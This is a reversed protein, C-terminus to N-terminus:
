KQLKARTVAKLRRLDPELKQYDKKSLHDIFLVGNLHDVEHLICRALLGDCELEHQSGDLEQFRVKIHSHRRITARIDPFSLCGEEYDSKQRKLFTLEPNAMFLPMFLVPPPRRGDLEYFYPAQKGEPPRVDVVCFQLALGVQQAALGIGEAAYMTALMDEALRALRSDFHTVPQGQQRLVPEGYKTIRMKM